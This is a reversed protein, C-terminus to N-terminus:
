MYRIKMSVAKDTKLYFKFEHFTPKSWATHYYDSFGFGEKPYFWAYDMETNSNEDDLLAIGYVDPILGRIKYRLTHDSVEKKSIRYTKYPIEAAFTKQSRYLQLQMTGKNNRINTIKVSISYSTTNSKTKFSSSIIALLLVFSIKLM